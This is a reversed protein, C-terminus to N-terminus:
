PGTPTWQPIQDAPMNEILRGDDKLAGVNILFLLLGKRKTPDSDALATQYLATANKRRELDVKTTELALTDPRLFYDIGATVLGPIVAVIALLLTWGKGTLKVDQNEIKALQM